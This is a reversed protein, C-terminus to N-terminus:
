FAFRLPSLSSKLGLGTELTRCCILHVAISVPRYELDVPTKRVEPDNPGYWDVIYHDKGKEPDIHREHSSNAIVEHDVETASSSRSDRPQLRPGQGLSKRSSGEPVTTQGYQAMNASKEAHVYKTWISPDVEEPYQFVKGRTILRVCHGFFTDRFLGAM